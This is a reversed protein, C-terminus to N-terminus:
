AGDTQRCNGQVAAGVSPRNGAGLGGGRGGLRAPQTCRMFILPPAGETGRISESAKKESRPPPPPYHPVVSRQPHACPCPAERCVSILPPQSRQGPVVRWCEPTCPGEARSRHGHPSWVKCGKGEKMTRTRICKRLWAGAANDRGRKGDTGRPFAGVCSARNFLHWDGCRM